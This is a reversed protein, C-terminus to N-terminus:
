KAHRYNGRRQEAALSEQQSPLPGRKRIGSADTGVMGSPPPTGNLGSLGPLGGQTDNQIPLPPPPFGAPLQFGSPLNFQSLDINSLLGTPLLPPVFSQQTQQPQFQQLSPAQTTSAIISALRGPDIAPADGSSAGFNPMSLPPPAITGMGPILSTPAGSASPNPLGPISALLKAGANQDGLDEAEDQEEQEEQERMQKRGFKRDWTGQAEAGEEGLHFQDKFCNIEGPRARSWFRTFHDNSGSALIHGLPHWDLSWISSEHAYTIRHAPHISQAPVTSPDSVNYPSLESVAVGVPPNPEDLLYSHLAGDDGGTAILSSHIPHWAIATIGKEHGRLVCVDRMMRLDFIRALNDRAATALLQDRLRSFVTATLANKHGHLTTLNRGVRPDWLKVSHDKSGSVILGKSPHWDVSKADWNHGSLTLDCNTTTFDFIKLTADDSATVFKRDSPAFALDRVPMSHAQLTQVNNLNPQWYKVVGEDDASLLWEKSYSWEAARISSYGSAAM